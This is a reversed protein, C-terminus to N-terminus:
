GDDSVGRLALGTAVALEPQVDTPEFVGSFLALPNPIKSVTADVMSALLGETGNWRAISGLLYVHDTRAGRSESAAFVLGRRIEHALKTFEPKIIEAVTRAKPDESGPTLDIDRVLDDLLEADLGLATGIKERLVDEGFDVEDDALLRTDSLLTLYTKTRGCNVVLTNQPPHTRQMAVVLRRIAIPGIELAKVDLGAKR